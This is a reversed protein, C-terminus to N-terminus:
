RETRTFKQPPPTCKKTGLDQNAAVFQWIEDAILPAPRGQKDHYDHLVSCTEVFSDSTSKHLNSVAIRAALTSYDPHQQSM